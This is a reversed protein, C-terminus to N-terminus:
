DVGSISQCGGSLAGDGGAAKDLIACLAAQLM